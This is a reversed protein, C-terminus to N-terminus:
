RLAKGLNRRFFWAVSGANNTGQTYFNIVNNALVMFVSSLGRHVSESRFKVPALKQM